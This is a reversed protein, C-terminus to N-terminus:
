FPLSLADCLFKMLPRGDRFTKDVTDLFDGALVDRKRLDKLAVFDKRKLDEICPHDLPYGRPPLRLSDGDLKLSERFRANRVVRQWRDPWEAIADRIRRLADADPHWVGMALFCEDPAIHIYYGPAHVDAGCNHRFQIGVNTKYPTKDRSFRTDRYVRMLSGGVRRDSALFCPSIRELRPAFTRILAMCPELVKQEYRQKNESFWQRDNHGALDDLFELLSPEFKRFEM